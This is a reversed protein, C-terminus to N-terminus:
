HAGSPREPLAAGVYRKQGRLRQWLENLTRSPKCRAPADTAELCSRENCVGSTVLNNGRRALKWECAEESAAGARRLEHVFLLALGKPAYLAVYDHSLSGLAARPPETARYRVVIEKAGDGDVDAFAAADFTFGDDFFVTPPATLAVKTVLRPYAAGGSLKGLWGRCRTKSCESWAIASVGEGLDIATSFKVAEPNGQVVVARLLDESIDVTTAGRALADLDIPSPPPAPSLPESAATFVPALLLGCAIAHALPRRPQMM